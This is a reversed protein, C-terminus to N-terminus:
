YICSDLVYPHTETLDTVMYEVVTDKKSTCLFFNVSMVKLINKNLVEGYFDYAIEKM